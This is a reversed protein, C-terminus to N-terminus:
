IAPMIWDKRLEMELFVIRIQIYMTINLRISIHVRVFWLRLHCVYDWLNKEPEM